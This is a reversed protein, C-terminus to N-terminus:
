GALSAIFSRLLTAHVPLVGPRVGHNRSPESQSRHELLLCGEEYFRGDLRLRCLLLHEVKPGCFLRWSLVGRLDTSGFWVGLMQVHSVTESHFIHLQVHVQAYLQVSM